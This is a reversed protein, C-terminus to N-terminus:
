KKAERAKKMNKSNRRRQAVTMNDSFRQDDIVEEKPIIKLVPKYIMITNKWEHRM